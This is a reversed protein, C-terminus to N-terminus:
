AVEGNRAAIWAAVEHRNCLWSKRVWQGRVLELWTGCGCPWSTRNCAAQFRM